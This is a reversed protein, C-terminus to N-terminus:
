EWMIPLPSQIRIRSGNWERDEEGTGATGVHRKLTGVRRVLLIKCFGTSCFFSGEKYKTDNVLLKYNLRM